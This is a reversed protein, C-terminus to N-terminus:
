EEHQRFRASFTQDTTQGIYLLANRDGLVHRGYIQYLGYDEGDWDPPTGWDNFDRIVEQRSYPGSWEIPLRLM